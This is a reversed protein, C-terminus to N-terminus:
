VKKLLLYVTAGALILGLVGLKLFIGNLENAELDSFYGTSFLYFVGALALIDIAFDAYLIINGRGIDM